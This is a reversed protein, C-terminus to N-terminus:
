FKHAGHPGMLFNIQFLLQNYDPQYNPKVSKYQLRYYSFETPFYTLIGSYAKEHSGPDNPYQAYDYRGGLYWNRNLQYQGFGYYGKSRVKGGPTDKCGWLYEGRLLMSQYNGRKLPKWRYTLDVGNVQSTFTASPDNYGRLHSYGLDINSSEGLDAYSHLRGFYLPKNSEGRSFFIDSDDNIGSVIAETYVSGTPIIGSVELGTGAMGEEGFFNSIASPVDAYPRAHQHTPNDKGFPLLTKGARMQLGLPMKLLTLYGEELHLHYHGEEKHIGMYVNAKSWPDINSEIGIEVERLQFPRDGELYPSNNVNWLFDGIVSIKPNQDTSAPAASPAPPAGESMEKEVSELIARDQDGGSSAAPAPIKPSVEGQPQGPSEKKMEEIEKRMGDVQSQLSNIKNLMEDMQTKTITVRPEKQPHKKADKGEAWAPRSFLLAIIFM